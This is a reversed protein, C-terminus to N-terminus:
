LIILHQASYITVTLPTQNLSYNDRSSSDHVIEEGVAQHVESLDRSVMYVQM